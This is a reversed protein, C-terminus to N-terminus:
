VRVYRTQLNFTEGAINSAYNGRTPGRGFAGETNGGGNAGVNYAGVVAGLRYASGIAGHTYAGGHAGLTYPKGVAESIPASAYAGSVLKISSVLYSKKRGWYRL